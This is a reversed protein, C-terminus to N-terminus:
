IFYQEIVRGDFLAASTSARVSLRDAVATIRPTLFAWRNERNFSVIMEIEM